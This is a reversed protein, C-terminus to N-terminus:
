PMRRAGIDVRTVDRTSVPANIKREPEVSWPLPLDDQLVTIVHPGSIVSPFEFGGYANTRTAFKGDLMVLINAAGSESADRQGNGNADLFVSGEIRGSGSGPFGGLPASTSGAYSGYRLSLFLGRDNPRTRIIEPTVLPSQVAITDVLVGRNEYVSAAVSWDRTIQWDVSINTALTTGNDNGSGSGSSRADRARLSGQLSLNNALVVRGNLGIAVANTNSTVAGGSTAPTAAVNLQLREISLSTSLSMGNEAYVSHDLTLAQARQGGETSSADIQLRSSGLTNLWQLYGYGSNSTVGFTRVAFGGGFSVQTSLRQRGSASAFWGSPSQGSISAFSEVDASFDRRMSHFDYRYSAGQLDSALPRDIWTLGKTFRFLSARHTVPGVRWVADGWAGTANVGSIRSGIGSLQWETGGRTVGNEGAANNAVSAYFGRPSIRTAGDGAQPAADPLINNGQAITAAATWENERVEAFISQVQGGLGVFRSQPFGEFRGPEGASAGLKLGQPGDNRWTTSGGLLQPTPLTVRSNRRALEPILLNTTGLANDARWGGDFPLGTQRLSWSTLGTSGNGGLAQAHLSLVGFNPTEVFADIQMGQSDTRTNGNPSSPNQSTQLNRTLQLSLGRPWGQPNREAVSSEAADLSPSSEMIRDQYGTVEAAKITPTAADIEASAPAPM